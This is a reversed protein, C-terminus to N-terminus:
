RSKRQTFAKLSKKTASFRLKKETKLINNALFNWDVGHDVKIEYIGLTGFFIYM